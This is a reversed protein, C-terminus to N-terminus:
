YRITAIFYICICYTKTAIFMYKNKGRYYVLYLVCSKKINEQYDINSTMQM